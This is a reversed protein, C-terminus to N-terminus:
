SFREEVANEPWEIGGAIVRVMRRKRSETYKIQYSVGDSKVNQFVWGPNQARANSQRNQRVFQEKV